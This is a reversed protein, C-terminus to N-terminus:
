KTAAVLPSNTQHETPKTLRRVLGGWRQDLYFGHVMYFRRALFFTRVVEVGQGALRRCFDELLATSLGRGKLENRVVIGRLNAVTPSDLTYIVGGVIEERSDLLVYFSSNASVVKPFGAHVYRQYLRGVESADVAERAMFVRGANDRVETCVVVQKSGAGLALVELRQEPSSHPFAMRAFASRDDPDRIAAQLESLEVMTAAREGPHAFMASLLRDFAAGIQVDADAFYTRRYLHYRAIEPLRDLSYVLVQEEVVQARAQATALPNVRTWGQYREIANCLSLPTRYADGLAALYTDLSERLPKGLVHLPSHTLEQELDELFTRAPDRGLAEVCAEFIWCPDLCRRCWPQHSSTQRYFNHALPRVLSLPSEYPKWEDLSLIFTGERFDPELVVVNSPTALGPVIRGGSNHWGVFFAAMGRIFLNRWATDSLPELGTLRQSGFERIRELANLESVYAVSLAQYERDYWGVRPVVPPGFPVASIAMMWRTMDVVQRQELDDALIVLLDYHKGQVTNISVRFTPRRYLSPLRTVWVGDDSVQSAELAPDEFVMAISKALFTTACFLRDLREVEAKPLAEHYLIRSRWADPAVRPGLASSEWWEGLRDLTERAAAALDPDSDNQIWAHLEISIEPFYEPHYRVFNALLRFIDSFVGRTASTAPWSLEVRYRHLRQRLAELRRQELHTRAIVEISQEDLFPLGSDIFSPMMAGTEPVVTELLLIRYALCRVKLDPHRALAELRRRILSALPAHVSPLMAGLQEVAPLSEPGSGFLARTALVHVRGLRDDGMAPAVISGSPIEATRHPLFVQAAVKGLTADWGDKCPSFEALQPNGAWLLPQRAFLGLDVRRGSGVDYELDGIRLRGSPTRKLTLRREDRRVWLGDGDSAIDSELWGQDRCFWLPITVAVGDCEIQNSRSAYLEGIERAFHREILERRYSGKPTLEGRELEFDREIVTFNVIREYPALSRNAAAVIQGLYELLAGSSSFALVVPDSRDLVVLLVNYERRDGVLFVRRIGPVGEFQAEVHLPAITRGKSNKYIDKIRDVIEFFGGDHVRFLDGTALWRETAEDGEVDDLYRAVYPGAILLEGIESLRLKMGPLAIGVTGEVYERPPTMTIGGTAETMGFGSCLAVQYRNFFRFVRPDLYGAASLGWRLRDGVVERLRRQVTEDAVSSDLAEVCREWIQVWRLPISVLGTPRVRPLLDMLTQASPSGVFVYTGGWYLSGMLELYRGFTHYLPLYCLLVEGDGVEPLAAGRAFRKALLQFSSFVVGKPKGTSGSTFLATAPQDLGLRSRVALRRAIDYPGLASIAQALILDGEAVNRADAQLHLIRFPVRVLSRVQDLRGALQADGCVVVDIAMQDFIWALTAADLQVDLPANFADYALCALDTLASDTSNKSLIAVRPSRGGVLGYLVAAISQIRHRAQRYTWAVSTRAERLFTREPHARVRQDLLTELSYRSRRIASFTTKAWRERWARDPLGELWAVAHSRDLYEHWVEAPLVPADPQLWAEALEVIRTPDVRSGDHSEPDWSAVARVFEDASKM